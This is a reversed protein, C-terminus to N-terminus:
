RSRPGAPLGALRASGCGRGCQKVGQRRHRRTAGSVGGVDVCTSEPDHLQSWVPLDYFRCPVLRRTSRHTLRRPPEKRAGVGKSRRFRRTRHLRKGPPWDKQCPSFRGSRHSRRPTNSFRSSGIRIMGVYANPPNNADLGTVAHDNGRDDVYHTRRRDQNSRAPLYTLVSPLSELRLAARSNFGRQPAASVRWCSDDAGGV